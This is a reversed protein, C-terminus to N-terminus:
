LATEAPVQSLENNAWALYLADLRRMMEAVVATRVVWERDMGVVSMRVELARKEGDIWDHMVLIEPPRFPSVALQQLRRVMDPRLMQIM